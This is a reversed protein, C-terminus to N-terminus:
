EARQRLWTVQWLVWTGICAAGLIEPIALGPADIGVTSVWGIWIALNAVGLAASVLAGRRNNNLALGGAYVISAVSFLLYLGAAVPFHLSHGQPFVGVGAMSAMAIGFLGAGLRALLPEVRLALTVAFGVGLLGGLILGGNFLLVTTGTGAAHDTVGLNSLANESWAFSPSLLVAGFIGIFAATIAALGLAPGVRETRLTGM